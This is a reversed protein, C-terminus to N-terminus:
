KDSRNITLHKRKGPWFPQNVRCDMLGQLKAMDLWNLVMYMLDPGYFTGLGGSASSIEDFTNVRDQRIGPGTVMFPVSEGSHILTGSSPTSHDATVAVVLENAILRNIVSGLGRDLSEIVRVKNGPNKSHAAADPAKTHVHIFQYQNSLRIVQDLRDALDRGPDTSDTVKLTNMGLFSSLGWYVLGSSISLAHLGWREQFKEIDLFKGARQTVIGNVPHKGDRKRKVNLDHASLIRYCWVLYSNLANATNITARDESYSRWPEVKIISSKPIFPDSDTVQRSVNGRLRIIGNPGHTQHYTINIGNQTYESIARSLVAYEEESAEPRHKELRLTNDDQEKLAAFHALIAVDERLLPIDAGLAELCGRGPFEEQNYGFMAFHANESPLCLGPRIAYFFGNCGLASLRDLHPTNAAQLPTRGQLEPHARDGLGDLLILIFCRPM